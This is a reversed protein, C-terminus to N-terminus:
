AGVAPTQNQRNPRLIQAVIQHALGEATNRLHGHVETSQEALQQRAAVMAKGAEQRASAIHTQGLALGEQRKAEILKYNELHRQRLATEYGALKQEAIALIGEAVHKRGEIRERRETLTRRLPKYLVWKLYYHLAVFLVITPISDFLLHGLQKLILDM